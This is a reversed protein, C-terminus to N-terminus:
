LKPLVESEYFDFFGDQDPGIQHVWIRDYGADAFKRIVALHTEPDPGLAITETADDPDIMSAAQEFHAPLPLEQMLQGEVGAIPWYRYSTEKASREDRAWCVTVEAHRPKGAGGSREFTEVVDDSPALAILGDGVRGALELSREGSAAVMVPIPREPADYVRANEVTYHRGYHTTLKGSWLQRMVDIAEELMELRKRVPPWHDGLVHENLNEGTGVGLEFRGPLLAAATAAAHAVIAPHIRVTPCTVGTLVRLRETVQAIAGIVGWVFPAHGQADTWPHYHDSIAAFTFGAEEARRAQRVLDPAAHEESSIKYGIEM